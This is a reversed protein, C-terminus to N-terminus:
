RAPQEVIYVQPPAIGLTERASARRHRARAPVPQARGERAHGLLENKGVAKFLRVAAAVALEVPKM